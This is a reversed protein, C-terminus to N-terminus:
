NQTSKAVAECGDEQRVTRLVMQDSHVQEPCDGKAKHLKGGILNKKPRNVYTYGMNHM